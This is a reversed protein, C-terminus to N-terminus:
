PRPWKTPGEPLAIIYQAGSRLVVPSSIASMPGCALIMAASVARELPKLRTGAIRALAEGTNDREMLGTGGNSVLLNVTKM